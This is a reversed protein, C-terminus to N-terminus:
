CIQARVHASSDALAGRVPQRSGSRWLQLGRAVHCARRGALRAAARPFWLDCRHSAAVRLPLDPLHARHTPRASPGLTDARLRALHRGARRSGTIVCRTIACGRLGTSSTGFRTDSGLMSMIQVEINRRSGMVHEINSRVRAGLAALAPVAAACNWTDAFRRYRARGHWGCTPSSAVSRSVQPLGAHDRWPPISVITKGSPGGTQGAGGSASSSAWSAVGTPPLGIPAVSPLDEIENQVDAPPLLGNLEPM